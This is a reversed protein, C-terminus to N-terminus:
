LTKIIKRKNLFIYIFHQLTICLQPSTHVTKNRWFIANKGMQLHNNSDWNAPTLICILIRFLKRRELTRKRKRSPFFFILSLRSVAWKILSVLCKSLLKEKQCYGLNVFRWNSLCKSINANLNKRWKSNLNLTKVINKNTPKLSTWQLNTM